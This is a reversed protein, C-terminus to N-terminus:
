LKKKVGSDEVSVVSRKLREEEEIIEPMKIVDTIKAFWVSEIMDRIPINLRSARETFLGPDKVLIYINPNKNRGFIENEHVYEGVGLFTEEDMMIDTHRKTDFDQLFEIQVNDKTCWVVNRADRSMNKRVGEFTNTEENETQVMQIMIIKFKRDIRPKEEVVEEMKEERVQKKEAEVDIEKSQASEEDNLYGQLFAAFEPDEEM